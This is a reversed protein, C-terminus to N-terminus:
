FFNGATGEGNPPTFSTGKCEIQGKLSNKKKRHWLASLDAGLGETSNREVTGLGEIWDARVM